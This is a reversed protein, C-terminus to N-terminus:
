PNLLLSTSKMRRTKAIIWRRRCQSNSKQPRNWSCSSSKITAGKRAAYQEAQEKQAEPSDGDVGQGTTSVRIAAIANRTKLSDSMAPCERKVKKLLSQGNQQDELIRDIILNAVVQVREDESL